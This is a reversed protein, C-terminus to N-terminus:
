EDESLDGGAKNILNYLASLEPLIEPDIKGSEIDRILETLSKKANSVIKVEDASLERNLKRLKQLDSKTPMTFSLTYDHDIFQQIEIGLKDMQSNVGCIRVWARSRTISTFLINRLKILELGEVCFDANALYVMPAENGKARYIGSCSVYNPIRFTDKDTNVGVLVSQIEKQNLYKRFTNYENKSYIVDPFIVLIDDPDLEDITINKHIQESIWQYQEAQSTFSKYVISDSPNLLESFYKPTAEPKRKLCVHTGYDLRGEVVQYGIETWLNLDEFMQVKSGDKYIGVGLSHALALIWYPNRYCIPLIIDRQAEKPKNSIDIRLNGDNDKGFMEELTPMETENLNQLEDYAWTLRKPNKVMQYAMKFFSTPLDQAEDILLADYIPEFNDSIFSLTENCVHEFTSRKGYKMKATSFSHPDIRLTRAMISYLGPEENSGWTHIIHLNEWNPEDGSFEYSFQRILDMYQQSLSRTYFTVAIKWEPYQSHLYAAKLALVITKGSGALGRIRQPGEPIELAAKKQWQDLNAIEKEIKKIVGGYSNDKQVNDRKKRPKINSVRQLVESLLCYMRDDFPSMDALAQDLDEISSFIYGDQVPPATPFLTIVQPSFALDRGKRLNNYKKFNYDLHFYLTDQEEKIAEDNEYNDPFIFVVLGFKKSILLADLTIKSDSSATLPYGLYLTGDLQPDDFISDIENVLDETPQIKTINGRVVEISM